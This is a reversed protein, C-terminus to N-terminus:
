KFMVDDSEYMPSSSLIAVNTLNRNIRWTRDLSLHGADILHIKRGKEEQTEGVQDLMYVRLPLHSFLGACATVIM